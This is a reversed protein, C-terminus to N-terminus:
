RRATSRSRAAVIAGSQARLHMERLAETGDAYTKGLAEIALTTL